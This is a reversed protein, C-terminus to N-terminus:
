VGLKERANRVNRQVSQQSCGCAEGWERQSWDRDVTMWYDIAETRTLGAEILHVIRPTDIETPGGENILNRVNTVARAKSKDQCEELPRTKIPPDTISERPFVGAEVEVIGASNVEDEVIIATPNAAFFWIPKSYEDLREWGSPLELM